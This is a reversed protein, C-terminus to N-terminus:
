PKGKDLARRATEELVRMSLPKLVFETIGLERAKEEDIKENFGTCLIVPVNPRIRLIETALSAGTMSPMTYDTIILDFQDPKSRFTELAEVSSTKVLAEYGLQGLMRQGIAALAAEDDVFLVRGTGKHIAIPTTEADERQARTVLKPIYIHFTTGRGVESYVTVTGSHRRVIGHVVALGLGSGKGVKKTTFYPDFIRELTASDMGHGTDKVTLRVYTAAQLEPHLAATEEDFNVERLAVTLMGGDEEMAHAANSCLNILAQHIQSPDALVMGQDCAIDERIDITSPLTGRMFRVGERIIAAVDTPVKEHLDKMRSFVLIQKVLDRARGAAKLVQLLDGRMPNTETIDLLMMETYGIIAALINNFDHAIGGALTGLAELKQAQRLQVELRDREEEAEKRYTIDTLIGRLGVFRDGEMLRKSLSRIWRSEGSVTMVRYEAPGNQGSVTREYTTTVMSLDAPHIFETFHRGIIEAPQYGSLSEVTPSIYTIVGDENSAYIVDSVNEVLHRYKEESKRLLEEVEKRASIDRSIGRYGCFVGDLDFIPVGSTESFIRHGNKHIAVTELLNFPRPSADSSAFIDQLRKTEAPPMLHFCRRGIVEDPSYGLIELIKPSAYTFVANKDMEWVFDSTTEVLTRFKQESLRQAEQARKREEVEKTLQANAAMVEATREEVMESLHERHQRLEEEAKIREGIEVKLEENISEAREKEEALSVNLRFIAITTTNLRRATFFMMFWYLLTMGGMALHIEDGIILFRIILPTLAPVSFAFFARMVTSYTGAAGAVMGGLVFALFAQHTISDTAFLFIGASGWLIGSLGLGLLLQQYFRGPEYQDPLLRHLRYFLGYRVCTVITITGLWALLVAHSIVRWQIFVLILSNLLTATIGIPAHKHLQRILEADPRDADQIAPM